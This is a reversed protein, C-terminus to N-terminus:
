PMALRVIYFNFLINITKLADQSSILDLVFSWLQLQQLCATVSSVTTWTQSCGYHILVHKTKPKQDSTLTWLHM